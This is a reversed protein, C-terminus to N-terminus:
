DLFSLSVDKVIKASEEILAPIELIKKQHDSAIALGHDVVAATVYQGSGMRSPRTIGLSKSIPHKLLRASVEERVKASLEPKAMEIRFCLFSKGKRPVFEFQLYLHFKTKGFMFPHWEWWAGFFGGSPNAVYDMGMDQIKLQDRCWAFFGFCDGAGWDRFPRHLFNKYRDQLVRLWNLYTSALDRVDRDQEGISRLLDPQELASSLRPATVIECRGPLRDKVLNEVKKLDATYQSIGLILYLLRDGPKVEVVSVQSQVQKDALQGDVKIEVWVHSKEAGQLEIGLDFARGRPEWEFDKDNPIGSIGLKELLRTRILLPGLVLQHLRESEKKVDFLLDIAAM